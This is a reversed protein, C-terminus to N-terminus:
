KVILSSGLAAKRLIHSARCGDFFSAVRVLKDELFSILFDANAGMRHLDVFQELMAIITESPTAVVDDSVAFPGDAAIARVTWSNCDGVVVVVNSRGEDVPAYM